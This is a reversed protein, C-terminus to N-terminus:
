RRKCLHFSQVGPRVVAYPFLQCYSAKTGIATMKTKTKYYVIITITASAYHDINQIIPIVNLSTLLQIGIYIHQM